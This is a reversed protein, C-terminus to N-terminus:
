RCQGTDGGGKYNLLGQYNNAWEPRLWRTFPSGDTDQIHEEGLISIISLTDPLLLKNQDILGPNSFQALLAGIIFMRGTIVLSPETVEYVEDVVKAWEASRLTASPFSDRLKYIFTNLPAADVSSDSPSPTLSSGYRPHVNRFEQLVDALSAGNLLTDTNLVRNVSTSFKKEDWTTPSNNADSQTPQNASNISQIQSLASQAMTRIADNNEWPTDLKQVGRYASQANNTVDVVSSVANKFDTVLDETSISGQSSFNGAANKAKTISDEIIYGYSANLWQKSVEWWTINQKIFDEVATYYQEAIQSIDSPANTM